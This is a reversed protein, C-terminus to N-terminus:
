NAPNKDDGTLLLFILLPPVIYIWNKQVWSRNDDEDQKNDAESDKARQRSGRRKDQPKIRNAFPLPATTYEHIEFAKPTEQRTFTVHAVSGDKNMYVHLSHNAFPLGSLEAYAFCPMNLADSGICYRKKELVLDLEELISKKPDENIYVTAVREKQSGSSATIDLKTTLASAGHAEAAALGVMFICIAARWACVAAPFM